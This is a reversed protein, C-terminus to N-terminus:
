TTATPLNSIPRVCTTASSVCRIATSACIPGSPRRVPRISMTSVTSPARLSSVCNRISPLRSAPRGRATARISRGVTDRPSDFRMTAGRALDSFEEICLIDPDYRNVFAALSDVTSRGDDGYFMRVNYAMVKLASRDYVPEGYHRLTDIKYYLSIKPVGLLLLVLMPSAYGWRWRIVWYLFLVLGSVYIVPAVLGLVSFVWSADPSVYPALYMFLLLLAVLATVVAFAADLLWVFLGRQRGPRGSDSDYVWREM